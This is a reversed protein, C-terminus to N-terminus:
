KKEQVTILIDKFESPGEPEVVTVKPRVGSAPDDEFIGLRRLNREAQKLDSYKLLAGPFLSINRQIIDTATKTNGVIIVQGVRAAPKAPEKPYLSKLLEPPLDITWDREDFHRTTGDKMWVMGRRMIVLLKRNKLDVHLEAEEATATWDTEGQPSSRHMLIPGLLRRGQVERVVMSYAFDPFSFQKSTTLRSYLLKETAGTLSASAEKAPKVAENDAQRRPQPLPSPGGARLPENGAQERLQRTRPALIRELQEQCPDKRAQRLRETALAALKSRPYRRRVLEYYYCASGPHGTRRYFEGIEFDKEAQQMTIDTLQGGLGGAKETVNALAKEIIRRGEAVKREREAEGGRALHKSLIALEIARAAFPSSRRDEALRSFARDAARYHGLLFRTSGELFLLRDGKEPTKVEKPPTDQTRQGPLAAGGGAVALALVLAAVKGKTLLMLSGGRPVSAGSRTTSKFLAPPVGAPAARESLAAALAAASLSLGRRSLRQRLRQRAWALRTAVTGRPWGLQAAAEAVTRGELYCLIVAARYKDPLHAIAEDLVPRLDKWCPDETPGAETTAARRECADRRLRRGRAKRATRCAVGYLWNGLLEPRRLCAAKRALVLFTTQFADEAAHHDGLIRRCAGLVMPGHRRVLVAFAAEARETAFRELLDADALASFPSQAVHRVFRTLPHAAATAMGHSRRVTRTERPYQRPPPVRKEKKEEEYFM